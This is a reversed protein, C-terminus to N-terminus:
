RGAHGAQTEPANRIALSWLTPGQLWGPLRRRDNECDNWVVSSPGVPACQSSSAGVHGALVAGALMGHVIREQRTIPQGALLAKSRRVKKRQRGTSGRHDGMGAFSSWHVAALWNEPALMLESTRSSERTVLLRGAAAPPSKKSWGLAAVPITQTTQRNDASCGFPCIASETAGRGDRWRPETDVVQYPACTAGSPSNHCRALSLPWAVICADSTGRATAAAM